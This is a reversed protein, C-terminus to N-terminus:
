VPGTEDVRRGMKGQAGAIEAVIKLKINEKARVVPSSASVSM